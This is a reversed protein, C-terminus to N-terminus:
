PSSSCSPSRRAPELGRQLHDVSRAPDNSATVLNPYLALGFLLTLTAITVCSSVFAQAPRGWHLALAPHQRDGARQRGGGGGGVALQQFNATARPVLALTYMTTLMYAVLFLGWTRWM